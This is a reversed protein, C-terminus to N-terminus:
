WGNYVMTSSLKWAMANQVGIYQHQVGMFTLNEIKGKL